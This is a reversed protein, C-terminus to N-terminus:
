HGDQRSEARGWLDRLAKAVCAPELRHSPDFHHRDDYIELTFDPFVDGPRAPLIGGPLLIVPWPGHEM